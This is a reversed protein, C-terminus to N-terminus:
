DRFIEFTDEYYNKEVYTRVSQQRIKLIYRKDHIKRASIPNVSFILKIGNLTPERRSLKWRHTDIGNERFVASYFQFDQIDRNLICSFKVRKIFM